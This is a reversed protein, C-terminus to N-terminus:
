HGPATNIANWLDPRHISLYEMLLPFNLYAPFSPDNWYLKEEGIKDFRIGIINYLRWIKNNLIAYVDEKDNAVCYWYFAIYLPLFLYRAGRFDKDLGVMALEVAKELKINATLEPWGCESFLPLGDNGPLIVRIAGVLQDEVYAGWYHESETFKEFFDGFDFNAEGCAKKCLTVASQIEDQKCLKMVKVDSYDM